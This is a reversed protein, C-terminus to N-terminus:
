VAALKSITAQSVTYGSAVSRQPERAAVRARAEEQQHPTPIPKRGLKVGSATADTCGRAAREAIDRSKLKAAVGLMALQPREAAASPIKERFVTACAAAKVQAVQNSLDQAGILVRACGYIM